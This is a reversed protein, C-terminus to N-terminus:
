FFEVNNYQKMFEDRSLTKYYRVNKATEGVKFVTSGYKGISTHSLCNLGTITNDWLRVREFMIFKDGGLHVCEQTYGNAEIFTCDEPTDNEILFITEQRPILENPQYKGQMPLFNRKVLSYYQDADDDYGLVCEAFIRGNVVKKIGKILYKKSNDSDGIRAIVHTRKM